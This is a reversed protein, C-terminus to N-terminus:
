KKRDKRFRWVARFAGKFQVIADDFRARAATLTHDFLQTAEHHEDAPIHQLFKILEREYNTM